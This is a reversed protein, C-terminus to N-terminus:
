IKANDSAHKARVKNRLVVLSEIIVQLDKEITQLERDSIENDDKLAENIHSALVGEEHMIELVQQFLEGAEAQVEPLRVTVRGHRWNFAQLAMDAMEGKGAGELHEVIESVEEYNVHHTDVAPRLKKYLVDRRIAMRVALADVGGPYARAAIYLADHQNIEQYSCTM